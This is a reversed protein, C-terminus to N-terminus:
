ESDLPPPPPTGTPARGAPKKQGPEKAQQELESIDIAPDINSSIMSRQTPTMIDFGVAQGGSDYDVITEENLELSYAIEAKKLRVYKAYTDM